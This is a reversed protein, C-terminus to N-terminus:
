RLFPNVDYIGIVVALVWSLMYLAGWVVLLLYVFVFVLVWFPCTVVMKTNKRM